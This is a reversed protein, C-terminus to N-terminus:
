RFFFSLCCFSYLFLTIILLIEYANIWISITHEIRRSCYNLDSDQLGFIFPSFDERYFIKNITNKNDAPQYLPEDVGGVLQTNFDRTFCQQFILELDYARHRLESM